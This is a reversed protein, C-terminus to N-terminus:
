FLFLVGVQYFAGALDLRSGGFNNIWNYIVELTLYTDIVGFDKELFKANKPDFQDLLLRVGCLGHGGYNWGNTDKGKIKDEQYWWANIGGGLYPTLIHGPNRFPIWRFTMSCPIMRFTLPDVSKKQTVSLLAKGDLKMYGASIGVELYPRHQWGIELQVPWAKDEGYILEAEKADPEYRGVKLGAFWKINGKFGKSKESHLSSIFCGTANNILDTWGFTPQPMGEALDSWESVNHAKDWARVRIRYVTLNQLNPLDITTQGTYEGSIYSSSVQNPDDEPWWELEYRWISQTFNADELGASQMASM